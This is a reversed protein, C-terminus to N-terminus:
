GNCVPSQEVNDRFHDFGKKNTLWNGSKHYHCVYISAQKGRRKLTRYACGLKNTDKWIMQTFHGVGNATPDVPDYLKCEDTWLKIAKSISGVKKNKEPGQYVFHSLNQGDLGNQLYKADDAATEPHHISCDENYLKDAYAQASDALRDDWQLDDAKNQARIHNHLSLFLEKEEALLQNRRFHRPEIKGNRRATPHYSSASQFITDDAARGNNIYIIMTGIGIGLLLLSLFLLAIHAVKM